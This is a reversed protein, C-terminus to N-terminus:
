FQHARSRAIEGHRRLPDFRHHFREARSPVFAITGRERQRLRQVPVGHERAALRAADNCDTYGCAIAFVRQGILDHLTHMVKGPQREDRFCAALRETLRLREDCAKLLAAGGGSSGHPQDFRAVLQKGFVEPFLVCQQSSDDRM